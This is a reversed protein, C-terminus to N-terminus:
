EALEVELPEQQGLAHNGPSPSGGDVKLWMEMVFDYFDPHGERAELKAYGYDDTEWGTGGYTAGDISWTSGSTPYGNLKIDVLQENTWNGWEFAARWVNSDEPWQQLLANKGEMVGDVAGQDTSARGANNHNQGVLSYFSQESQSPHTIDPCEGGTPEDVALIIGLRSMPPLVTHVNARSGERNYLDASPFVLEPAVRMYKKPEYTCDDEDLDCDISPNLPNIGDDQTGHGADNMPLFRQLFVATCTGSPESVIGAYFTDDQDTPINVISGMLYDGSISHDASGYYGTSHVRYTEVGSRELFASFHGGETEEVYQSDDGGNVTRIIETLPTNPNFEHLEREVEQARAVITNFGTRAIERAVIQEQRDAQDSLTAFNTQEANYLIFAGAILASIMLLIAAKGM